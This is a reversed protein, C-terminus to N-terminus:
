RKNMVPKKVNIKLVVHQKGKETLRVRRGECEVLGNERLIRISRCFSAYLKNIQAVKKRRDNVEDDYYKLGTDDKWTDPQDRKCRALAIMGLFNLLPRPITMDIGTAKEIVPKLRMWHKDTHHLVMLIDSMNKGMRFIM